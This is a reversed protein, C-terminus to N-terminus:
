ALKIVSLSKNGESEPIYLGGKPHRESFMEGLDVATLSTKQRLLDDHLCVFEKGLSNNQCSAFLVQSLRSFHSKSHDSFFSSSEEKM